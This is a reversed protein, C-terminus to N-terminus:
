SSFHFGSSARALFEVAPRFFAVIRTVRSPSAVIPPPRCVRPAPTVLWSACRKAVELKAGAMSGSRDLVLAVRLPPRGDSDPAAPACIEVMAHVDHEGEVALLSHDLRVSAQM